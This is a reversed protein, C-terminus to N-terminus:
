KGYNKKRTDYLNLIFIKNGEVKYYLRNHKTIHLGRINKSKRTLAGSFPHDKLLEIRSDITDLFNSAVKEGWENELYSLVNTVRNM